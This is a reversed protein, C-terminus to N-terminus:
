IDLLEDLIKEFDHRFQLVIKGIRYYVYVFVGQIALFVVFLVFLRIWSAVFVMANYIATFFIEVGSLIPTDSWGFLGASRPMGSFIAVSLALGAIAISIALLVATSIIFGRM